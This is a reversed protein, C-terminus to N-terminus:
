IVKPEWIQGRSDAVLTCLEIFYDQDHNLKMTNIDKHLWQVNGVEYGRSSDIRDLSATQKKNNDTKDWFCIPLGSLNCRRGQSIFLDWAYEITINFPIERNKSRTKCGRQITYWFHGSIEQYGTWLPNKSSCREQQCGCSGKYATSRIMASATAIMFNECFKCHTFVGSRTNTYQSYVDFGNARAKATFEEQILKKSM